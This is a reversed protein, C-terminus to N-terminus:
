RSDGLRRWRGLYRELGRFTLSVGVALLFYIVLISGFIELTRDGETNQQLVKGQFTLEAISIFQVLATNKLLEIQLNGMPPMIRVVAQPLIVHCMRQFPSLNLAIGAETQGQATSNIAGRIIEAGYAGYNLGLVLIGVVTAPLYRDPEIATDNFFLGGAPIAPLIRPLVYYFWFLQILASTGRFVEVYTTALWRIAFFPARRMLEAIFAVVIALAGGGAFMLVTLKLGAFLDPLLDFPPANM